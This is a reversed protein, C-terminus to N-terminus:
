RACTSRRTSPGVAAATGLTTAPTPSHSPCSCCSTCCCAAPGSTPRHMPFPPAHQSFVLGAGRALLLIRLSWGVATPVGCPMLHDYSVKALGAPCAVWHAFRSATTPAAQSTSCCRQLFARARLRTPTPYHVLTAPVATAILPPASCHQLAKVAASSCCQAATHLPPHAAM